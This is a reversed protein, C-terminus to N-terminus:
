SMANEAPLSLEVVTGSGVDSSFDLEGRHEKVIRACVSLGLGTGDKESKTTFFPDFIRDMHEPKIGVGEDLVSVVVRSPRTEYRTELAIGHSKDPLAQCANQILNVVVQEMRQFSGKISPLCSSLEVTVRNSYQKLYGALLGMAAKVVENMDVTQNMDSVDKRAYNKM